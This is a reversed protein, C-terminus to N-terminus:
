DGPNQRPTLNFQVSTLPVTNGPQAPSPVANGHEAFLHNRFVELRSTAFRSCRPCVFVRSARPFRIERRLMDIQATEGQLDSSEYIHLAVTLLYPDSGELFSDVSIRSAPDLIETIRGWGANTLVWSGIRVVPLGSYPNYRNLLELLQGALPEEGLQRLCQAARPKEEYLLTVADEFSLSAQRLLQLIAGVAAACDRGVLQTLAQLRIQPDELHVLTLCSRVPWDGPPPVSQLVTQFEALSIVGAAQDRGLRELIDSQIIQAGFARDLQPSGLRSLLDALTVMERTTAPQLNRCCVELDLIGAATEGLHHHILASEMRSSFARRRDAAGPSAERSLQQLRDAPTALTVDCCDGRSGEPPLNPPAAPAWPDLVVMQLRYLGAPFEARSLNFEHVGAAEDPIAVVLPPQWPRFRSWLILARSKLPRREQWAVRLHHGEDHAQVAVTLGQLQLARTVVLVPLSFNVTGSQRDVAALELRFLPSDSTELASKFRSLDFRWFRAQPQRTGAVARDQQLTRGYIDRLTLQLSIPNTQSGALDVVLLPTREQLLDGLSIATHSQCWGELQGTDRVLRWRLRKVRLYLPLRILQHAATEQRILLGVSSLDPPVRIEQLGPRPSEVQLRTTADLPEVGALLPTRLQFNVWDAGRGPQPLYGEQLGDVHCQPLIQFTLTTDRGLPGKVAVQYTGIPRPGLLEPTGLEVRLMGDSWTVGGPPLEALVVQTSLAPDALGCSDIKLRWRGLEAAPDEVVGPQLQLQPPADSYVPLPSEELDTPLLRGGTLQPALSRDGSRVYVERVVEGGQLLALRVARSLDWCELTFPAWDGPLEPLIELRAGEGARVELAYERPYLLWTERASIHTQLNGTAPDFALILHDPSCGTIQWEAQEDGQSHRITLIDPVQNLRLTIERTEVQDGRRQTRVRLEEHWPGAEVTWSLRDLNFLSVPQAPLKLFVGLGWPDLALQPRKLRSKAGREPAPAAHQPAWSAFFEVLHVPLGAEAASLLTQDRQWAQLLQRSRELLGAATSGGYELFNLVPKDTAAILGAHKLVEDVLEGGELAALQPRLLSNQVINAFFDRLCYVPIGGHALIPDVYRRGREQLDTFPIKGFRRILKEFLRGFLISDVPRHLVTEYTSWFDGNNYGHVGYGVLFVLFVAPLHQEVVALVDDLHHHYFFRSFQLGIQDLVERSVPIEGVLEVRALQPLFEREWQQLRAVAPDAAPLRAERREAAALAAAESGQRAPLTRGGSATRDGTGPRGGTGVRGATGGRRPAGASTPPRPSVPNPRAPPPPKILGRAVFLDKFKQDLLQLDADTVGTLNCKGFTRFAQVAAYVRILETQNQEQLCQLLQPPLGLEELKVTRLIEALNM